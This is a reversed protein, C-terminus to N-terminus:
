KMEQTASKAIIKVGFPARAAAVGSLACNELLQSRLHASRTWRPDQLVDLVSSDSFLVLMFAHCRAFFLLRVSRQALALAVGSM